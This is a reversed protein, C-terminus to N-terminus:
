WDVLDWQSVARPDSSARVIIRATLRHCVPGSAPDRIRRLLEDVARLGLEYGPVDVTTIAPSVLTSPFVNDFGCVSLDEPVSLGAERLAKLAGIAAQDSSAQVADFVLGSELATKVCVYGSESLYDGYMLLERDAQLGNRELCQLYGTFRAHEHELSVPGSVYLIKGRGSDLLHQTILGSYTANDLSVSSLLSPDLQSEVSVVPPMASGEPALEAAWARSKDMPVCSNLIIGDVCSSILSNILSRETQFDYGSNLILIRYGATSSANLIGNLVKQFFLKTIGPFVVGITNTRQTKLGRAVFNVQYNTEKIADLVKRRVKESVARKGTLVNSVTAVSVGARRSIDKMSVM